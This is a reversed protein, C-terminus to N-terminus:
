EERDLLTRRDIQRGHWAALEPWTAEVTVVGRTQTNLGLTRFLPGMSILVMVIYGGHEAAFARLFPAEADSVWGKVAELDTGALLEFSDEPIDRLRVSPPPGEAVRDAFAHCNGCYGKERDAPSWSTMGCDGCTITPAGKDDHGRTMTLSM